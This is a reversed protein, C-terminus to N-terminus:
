ASPADPRRSPTAARPGPLRSKRPSRRRYSVVAWKTAAYGATGLVAGVIISGVWLETGLHAVTDLVHKWFELELFRGLIGASGHADKLLIAILGEADQFNGEGNLIAAGIRYNAYFIPVATLPNTIWVLPIVVAKNARLIAAVGVAIIMQLSITPTLAVFLGIAVGLAIRHPTDDIHLIRFEVFEVIGSWIRRSM